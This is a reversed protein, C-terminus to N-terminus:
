ASAVDNADADPIVDNWDFIPYLGVRKVPTTAAVTSSTTAGVLDSRTYDGTEVSIHGFVQDTLAVIHTATKAAVEAATAKQIYAPVTGSAPVLKVFDGYCIASKRNSSTVKTGETVSGKVAVDLPLIYQSHATRFQAM